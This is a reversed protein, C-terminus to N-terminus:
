LHLIQNSNQGLHFHCMDFKLAAIALHHISNVSAM